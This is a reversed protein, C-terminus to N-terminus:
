YPVDIKRKRMEQAIYQNILFGAECPDNIQMATLRENFDEALAIAIATILPNHNGVEDAMKEIGRTSILNNKTMLQLRQLICAMVCKVKRTPNEENLLDRPIQSLPVGVQNGCVRKLSEIKNGLSMKQQRKPRMDYSPEEIPQSPYGYVDSHCPLLLDSPIEFQQAQNLSIISMLIMMVNTTHGM